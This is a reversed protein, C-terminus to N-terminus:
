NVLKWTDAVFVFNTADRPYVFVEVEQINNNIDFGTLLFKM